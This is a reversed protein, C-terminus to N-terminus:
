GRGRRQCLGRWGYHVFGPDEATINSAFSTIMISIYVSMKPSKPFALTVAASLYGQRQWFCRFLLHTLTQSHTWNLFHGWKSLHRWFLADLVDLLSYSNCFTVQHAFQNLTLGYARNPASYHSHTPYPLDREARFPLKQTTHLTAMIEKLCM